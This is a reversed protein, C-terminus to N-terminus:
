IWYKFEQYTMLQLLFDYYFKWHISELRFHEGISVKLTHSSSFRTICKNQISPTRQLTQLEAKKEGM